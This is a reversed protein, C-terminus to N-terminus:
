IEDTNGKKLLTIYNYYCQKSIGLERQIEIAKMERKLFKKYYEKFKNLSIKAKRGFKRGDQIAIKRGESTRGVIKKREQEAVELIVDLLANTMVEIFGGNERIKDIIFEKLYPMDLCVLEIEKKILSIILEKTEKRNRGLRDIEKVVLTDGPKLIILLENLGERDLTKGTYKDTFIFRQNIGYKVLADIQRQLNQHKTSVRCYGYIM